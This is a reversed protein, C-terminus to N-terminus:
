TASGTSVDKVENELWGPTARPEPPRTPLGEPWVPLEGDVAISRTRERLREVAAGLVPVGCEPCFSGFEPWVPGHEVCFGVGDPLIPWVPRLDRQAAKLKVISERAELLDHALEFAAALLPASSCGQDSIDAIRVHTRYNRSEPVSWIEQLDKDFRLGPLADGILGLLRQNSVRESM